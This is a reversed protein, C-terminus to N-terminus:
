ESFTTFTKGDFRCLTTNRTGIWLNGKIDEVISYVGNHCLGDKRTFRIFTKGDYRWLGGDENLEGSGLETGFWLNGAKDEFALNISGNQIGGKETFNSFKQGDFRCVGNHRTVILLDGNKDELISRVWGEGYPKYQTISKGDFRCIGENALVWSGFWINGSKDEFICQTWKLSVKSTNLINIDLFRTFAKGDFCYIGDTTGLWIKGRRDQMMSWLENKISPNNNLSNNYLFSSSITNPISINTFKKGDFRSIADKSGFWIDGSIDEIMFFIGNGCLGDKQTFQTFVKGDYRYVGEGTTGFWINGSKDKLSCGVQQYQDTGQTKTLKPNKSTFSLQEVVMENKRKSKTQGNCSTFLMSVLLLSFIPNFTTITM